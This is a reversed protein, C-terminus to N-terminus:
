PVAGSKAGEFAQLLEETERVIALHGLRVAKSRKYESLFRAETRRAELIGQLVDFQDDTLVLTKV